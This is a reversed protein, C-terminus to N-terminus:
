GVTGANMRERVWTCVEVGVYLSSKLDISSNLARHKVTVPAGRAVLCMHIKGIFLGIINPIFYNCNV